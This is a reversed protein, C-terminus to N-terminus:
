KLKFHEIITFISNYITIILVISGFILNCYALYRLNKYKKDGYLLFYCGSILFCIFCSATGGISSLLVKISIENFILFLAIFYVILVLIYRYIIKELKLYFTAANLQLPIAFIVTILFLFQMMMTIKDNPLSKFFDNGIKFLFGNLCGFLLYVIMASIMCSIIVKNVIKLPIFSENQYTFISQHCTFAFVYSGLDKLMESFKLPTKKNLFIQSKLDDKLWIILLRILSLLVMSFTAFIGLFSTFRLKSYKRITSIPLTIILLILLAFIRYEKKFINDIIGNIIVIYSIGVSICKFVIVFNVIKQIIKNDPITSLTKNKKHNLMAYFILGLSSFFCSLVTMIITMILGNSSILIPYIIVGTGVITKILNTYGVFFPSMIYKLTKKN